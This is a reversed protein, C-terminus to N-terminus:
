LGMGVFLAGFWHLLCSETRYEWAIRIM